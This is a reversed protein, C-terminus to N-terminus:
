RSDGETYRGEFHFEWVTNTLIDIAKSHEALQEVIRLTGDADHQAIGVWGDAPDTGMVIRERGEDDVIALRRLTLEDPKSTAGLTLPTACGIALLVVLHRLRRV